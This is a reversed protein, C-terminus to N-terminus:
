LPALVPLFSGKSHQQQLWPQEATAILNGEEKGDILHDANQEEERQM